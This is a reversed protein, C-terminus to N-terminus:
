LVLALDTHAYWHGCHQGSEKKGGRACSECGGSNSMERLRHGNDRVRVDEAHREAGCVVRVPYTRMSRVWMPKRVM